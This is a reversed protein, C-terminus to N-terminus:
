DIKLNKMCLMIKWTFKLLFLGFLNVRFWRFLLKCLLLFFKPDSKQNQAIRFFRSKSFNNLFDLINISINWSFNCEISIFFFDSVLFVYTIRIVKMFRNRIFLKGCVWINRWSRWVLSSQRFYLQLERELYGHIYISFHLLLDKKM